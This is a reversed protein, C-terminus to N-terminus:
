RKEGAVFNIPVIFSLSADPVAPPPPPFPAARKVLALAEADLIASGSSKVIGSSVVHGQRDIRFALNAV